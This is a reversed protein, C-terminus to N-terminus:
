YWAGVTEKHASVKAPYCDNDGEACLGDKGGGDVPAATWGIHAYTYISYYNEITINNKITFM